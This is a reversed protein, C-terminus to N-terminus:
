PADLQCIKQWGILMGFIKPGDGREHARKPFEIVGTKANAFVAAVEFLLTGGPLAAQSAVWEWGRLYGFKATFPGFLEGKFRVVIQRHAV